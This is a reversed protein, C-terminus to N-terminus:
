IFAGILSGIGTLGGLLNALPRRPEYESQTQGLGILPAMYQLYQMLGSWQNDNQGLGSEVLRDAGAYRAADLGPIMGIGSLTRDLGAGYRDATGFAASLLNALNQGEVGSQGALADMINSRNMQQTNTLGGIAALQNGIGANVQNDIQGMAGLRLGANQFRNGVNTGQVGSIADILSGQLGTRSQGLQELTTAAQLQRNRENQYNSSRVNAENAALRDIMDRNMTAGGYRGAGSYYDALQNATHTNTDAIVQDLYPDGNNLYDGRATPTLYDLGGSSGMSSLLGRYDGETTIDTNGIGNQAYGLGYRQSYSPQRSQSYIDGYQAGTTVGGSSALRAYDDGTTIQRTGNGVQTAPALLGQIAPTVGGNGTLNQIFNFAGGLGPTGSRAINAMWDYGANVNPSPTYGAFTTQGLGLLDKWPQEAPGTPTTTVSGTLKQGAPAGNNKAM